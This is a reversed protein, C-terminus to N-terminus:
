LLILYGLPPLCFSIHLRSFTLIDPVYKLADDVCVCVQLLVAARTHVLPPENMNNNDMGLGCGHLLGRYLNPLIHQSLIKPNASKALYSLEM